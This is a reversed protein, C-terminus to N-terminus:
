KNLQISIKTGLNIGESDIKIVGGCKKIFNACNHLGFGSGRKKTSFGYKFLSKLLEPEIGIGNDQFCIELYDQTESVEIKIIKKDYDVDKQERENMAEISNTIINTVVQSFGIKEIEVHTSPNIDFDVEVNSKSIKDSVIKTCDKFFLLLNVNEKKLDDFKAFKQQASIIEAVHFCRDETNKIYKKLSAEIDKYNSVVESLINFLQIMQKTDSVFAQIEEKSKLSNLKHHIKELINNSIDFQDMAKTKSPVNIITTLVNGINHLVTTANQAVGDRYASEIIKNQLNIFETEKRKQETIDRISFVFETEESSLCSSHCSYIKGNLNFTFDSELESEPNFKESAEELVNFFSLKVDPRLEPFYRQARANLEKIYGQKSTVVVAFGLSSYVKQTYEFATYLKRTQSEIEDELILRAKKERELKRKLIELENEM